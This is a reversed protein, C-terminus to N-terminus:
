AHSTAPPCASVGIRIGTGGQRLRHPILRTAAPNALLGYYALFDREDDIPGLAIPCLQSVAVRSGATLVLTETEPAGLPGASLEVSATPASTYYDYQIEQAFVVPTGATPKAAEDGFVWQDNIQGTDGVLASASLRGSSLLFRGGVLRGAPPQSMLCEPSAAGQGAPLLQDLDITTGFSSALTLDRAPAGKVWVDRGALPWIGLAPCHSAADPVLATTHTVQGTSGLFDSAEFVLVPTHTCLVPIENAREGAVFVATVETTSQLDPNNRLFACIGQFHVTLVPQLSAAVNGVSM